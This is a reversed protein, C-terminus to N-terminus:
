LHVFARFSCAQGITHLDISMLLLYIYQELLFSIDAYLKKILQM